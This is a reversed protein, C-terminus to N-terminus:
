AFPSQGLPYLNFTGQGKSIIDTGCFIAGSTVILSKGQFDIQANGVLRDGLRAPRLYNLKFEVTSVLQGLTVAQSLATVGLVNDMMGAIVGGHSITATSLHRQDITLSYTVKGPGFIELELGLTRDFNSHQRFLRELEEPSMKM